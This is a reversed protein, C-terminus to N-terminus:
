GEIVRRWRLPVATYAANYTKELPVQVQADEALFLPMDPLLSGIAYGEPYANVGDHFVEYAVSSFPGNTESVPVDTIHEWIAAHIGHPDRKTRSLVDLLLLHVDADILKLVKNVFKSFPKKGSKNGASIIEIVAVVRDNSVHRISVHSKKRAYWDAEAQAYDRVKPRPLVGTVPGPSDFISSLPDIARGQLTIIDPIKEGTWQEAMAYFDKPLIGDNLARKIQSLWEHHFDHFIGPEVRSWDHLPM